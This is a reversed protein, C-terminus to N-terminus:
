ISFNHRGTNIQVTYFGVAKVSGTFHNQHLLNINQCITIPLKNSNGMM